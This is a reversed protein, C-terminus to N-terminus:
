ENKKGGLFDFGYETVTKIYYIYDIIFHLEYANTTDIGNDNYKSSAMLVKWIYELAERLVEAKLSGIAFQGVQVGSSMELAYFIYTQKKTEAGMEELLHFKMNLDLLNITRKRRGYPQEMSQVIELPPKIDVGEPIEGGISLINISGFFKNLYKLIENNVLHYKDDYLDKVESM